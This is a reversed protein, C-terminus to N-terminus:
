GPIYWRYNSPASLKIESCPSTVLDDLGGTDSTAGQHMKFTLTAPGVRQGRDLLKVGDWGQGRWLGHSAYRRM